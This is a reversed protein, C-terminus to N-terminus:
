KRNYVKLSFESILRNNRLKIYFALIAAFAEASVNKAWSEASQAAFYIDYSKRNVCWSFKGNCYQYILYFCNFTEGVSLKKVTSDYLGACCSLGRHAMLGKGLKQWFDIFINEENKNV